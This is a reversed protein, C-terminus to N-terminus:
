ALKGSRRILARKIGPAGIQSHQVREITVVDDSMAIAENFWDSCSGM